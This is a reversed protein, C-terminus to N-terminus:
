KHNAYIGNTYMNWEGTRRDKLGDMVRPPNGGMNWRFLQNGAGTYDYNNLEDLLTSDKPNFASPLNYALSVLADYQQQSLPVEVRQQVVKEAPTLDRM